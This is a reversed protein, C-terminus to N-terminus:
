EESNDEYTESQQEETQQINKGSKKSRCVRCRKPLAFGRQEFWAREAKSVGFVHGCTICVRKDPLFEDPYENYISCTAAADTFSEYFGTGNDAPEGEYPDTVVSWKRGIFRVFYRVRYGNQSSESTAWGDATRQTFTTENM